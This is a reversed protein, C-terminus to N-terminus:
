FFVAVATIDDRAMGQQGWLNISTTILENCFGQVDLNPYYKNGIDRVIENSMYEWVGDSCVVLFKTNINKEYEVVEPTSIVGCEKAQFDGLSRSMALGPFSTGAKFVRYPGLENGFYDKIREVTGGCEQIRKYEDPLNPKHDRSLPRIIQNTFNGSDEILISRSDGVNFCILHSNFQFILDCTTGALSCDFSNQTLLENDANTYLDIINSFGGSKLNIYIDEATEIQAILSLYEVYESMKNIFYNKFFQSVFHGDSGHGDLVGFINFGEIGGVSTCVLPTDQNTKESGDISKGPKSSLCCSKFYDSSFPPYIIESNIQEFPQYQNNENLDLNLMPIPPPLTSININFVNNSNNPNNSTINLENQKSILYNTNSKKIDLNNNPKLLNINEKSNSNNNSNKKNLSILKNAFNNAKGVNTSLDDDPKDEYDRNIDINKLKKGNKLVKDFKKNRTSAKLIGSSSLKRNFSRQLNINNNQSLILSNNSKSTINVSNYLNNPNVMVNQNLINNTPTQINNYSNYLLQNNQSNNLQNKYPEYRASNSLFNM